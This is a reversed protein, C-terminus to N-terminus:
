KSQYKVYADQMMKVAEEIGMKKLKDVFKDYNSIPEVGMVFKVWMENNYTNIENMIETYRAMDKEMPKLYPMRVSSDYEAWIRAADKLQPLGANIPLRAEYNQAFSIEGVCFAHQLIAQDPPLGSPNKLVLDTYKLKGDSDKSYSLGEVGWNMLTDGEPSYLYDLLRVVEKKYKCSETIAGGVTVVKSDFDQSAYKKGDPGKPWPAAVLDFAPSIKDKMNLYKGMGNSNVHYWAGARNSTVKADFSKGDTAAFEPDILGEDYWQAMTALFDKYAPEIPGYKVEGSPNLCFDGLLGWAAGLSPLQWGWFAAGAGESIFPIEDPKGNDNPDKEKFAKLVDHYEDITEPVKLSLKDLWDKRFIHGVFSLIRKDLTLLPFYTLVGEDTSAQKRVEPYEEMIKKFNPANQDILDNLKIIIKDDIAKNIGGPITVWNYHIIDPLDNSALLLNFSNEEQGLTPHIFEIKIGTRKELEKICSIENYSKLTAAVGPLMKIWWKITIPEKVIPLAASDVQQESSAQSSTSKSEQQQSTTSTQSSSDTKGCGSLFSFTLVVMLIMSLIRIWKKMYM